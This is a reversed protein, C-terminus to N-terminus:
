ECAANTGEEERGTFIRISIIRRTQTDMTTILKPRRLLGSKPQENKSPALVLDACSIDTLYRQKIPQSSLDTRQKAHTSGRAKDLRKRAKRM